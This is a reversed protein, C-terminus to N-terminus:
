KAAKLDFYMLRRHQAWQGECTMLVLGPKGKFSDFIKTDTPNIVAKSEYKYALIHGGITYVYAADGPRLNKTPGFVRATWHGYILTKDHKNNNPATNTAYNATTNTVSWARSSFDYFGAQVPLDIGVSPIVIRAPLGSIVPNNTQTRVAMDAAAQQGALNAAAMASRQQWVPLLFCAAILLHIPLVKLFLPVQM